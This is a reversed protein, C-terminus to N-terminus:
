YADHKYFKPKKHPEIVCDAFSIKNDCITQHVSRLEIFLMLEGQPTQVARQLCPIQQCPFPLIITKEAHIMTSAGKMLCSVEQLHRFRVDNDKNGELLPNAKILENFTSLNHFSPCLAHCILLIMGNQTIKATITRLCIGSHLNYVIDVHDYGDDALFQSILYSDNISCRFTPIFDDVILGDSEEEEDELPLIEKISLSDNDYDKNSKDQPLKAL